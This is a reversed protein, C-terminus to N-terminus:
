GVRLRTLERGSDELVVRFEGAMDAIFDLQVPVEAVALARLDYGEILVTDADDAIVVVRVPVNLRLDVAGTDGTLRGDTVVISVIRPANPDAVASAVSPNRPEVLVPRDASPVPPEGDGCAALPLSLLLALALRSPVALSPMAAMIGRAPAGCM